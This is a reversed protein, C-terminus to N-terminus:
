STETDHSTYLLCISGDELIKFNENATVLGELKINDASIHVGSDLNGNEDKTVFASIDAQKVINKNEDMFQKM